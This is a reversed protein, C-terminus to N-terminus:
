SCSNDLQCTQAQPRAARPKVEWIGFAILIELGCVMELPRSIALFGASNHFGDLLFSKHATSNIVLVLSNLNANACLLLIQKKSEWSFLCFYASHLFASFFLFFLFRRDPDPRFWCVSRNDSSRLIVHCSCPFASCFARWSTKFDGQQWRWSVHYYLLDIIHLCKQSNSVISLFLLFLVQLIQRLVLEMKQIKGRLSSHVIAGGFCVHLCLNLGLPGLTQLHICSM